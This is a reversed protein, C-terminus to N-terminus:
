THTSHQQERHIDPEISMQNHLGCDVALVTDHSVSPEADDVAGKGGSGGGAACRVYPGFVMRRTAVDEDVGGGMLLLLVVLGNM